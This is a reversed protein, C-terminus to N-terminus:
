NKPLIIKFKSGNKTLSYKLDGSFSKKMIDLSMYLGIGTGKGQEKTTFYPNFIKNQIEEPIGGANDEIAIIPINEERYIEINIFKNNNDEQELFADRANSLINIIVQELLDEHGEVEIDESVVTNIEINHNRLQTGIIQKIADVSHSLKFKQSERTPKVFNMFTDITESMKQCQDQIFGSDEQLKEDELMGMGALLSLNISTASIANLPQRWQHAIMGIMEGMQAQKSQQLIAKDKEKVDTLDIITTIRHKENNIITNKGKVLGVFISKDQKFLNVEYPVISSQSLAKKAKDYESEPLFDYISLGIISEKDKYGFIDIASQNAQVLKYNSDFITIAEMATDLLNSMVKNKESLEVTAEEVNLTLTKNFREIKESQEKLKQSTIKLKEYAKDKEKERKKDMHAFWLIVIFIVLFLFLTIKFIDNFNELSKLIINHEKISFDIVIIAQVENAIIVPYLYTIWLSETEKSKHEFYIPKKDQYVEIYKSPNLPEYSEDFESKDDSDKAGDLLFHFNKKTKDELELLYFYRYRDTIFNELSMEFYNRLDVNNKLTDYINEKTHQKIQSAINQSIEEVYDIQAQHNVYIIEDKTKAFVLYVSLSSIILFIAILNFIKTM